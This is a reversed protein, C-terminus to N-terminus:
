VVYLRYNAVCPKHHDVLIRCPYKREAILAIEHPNVSLLTLPLVRVNLGDKLLCQYGALLQPPILQQDVL